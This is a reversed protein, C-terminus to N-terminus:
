DRFYSQVATRNLAWYSFAICFLYFLTTTLWGSRAPGAKAFAFLMGLEFGMYITLISPIARRTFPRKQWLALAAAWFLITWIATLILRFLPSPAEAFTTLLRFNLWLTLLRGLNWGGLLFVGWITLTVSHPRNQPDDM